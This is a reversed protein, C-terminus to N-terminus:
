ELLKRKLVTRLDIVRQALAIRESVNLQAVNGLPAETTFLLDGNRPFGRTMFENYTSESVFEEPQQKIYGM